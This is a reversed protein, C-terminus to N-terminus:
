TEVNPALKITLWGIETDVGGGPQESVRDGGDTIWFRNGGSSGVLLDGGGNGSISTDGAPAIITEDGTPTGLINGTETPTEPMLQGLYNYYPL